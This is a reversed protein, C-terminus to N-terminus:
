TRSKPAEFYDYEYWKRVYWLAVFLPGIHSGWFAGHVGDLGYGTFLGVIFFLILQIFIVM